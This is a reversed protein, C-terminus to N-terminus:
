SLHILIGDRLLATQGIYVLAKYSYKEVKQSVLGQNAAPLSASHPHAGATATPPLFGVLASYSGAVVGVWRSARFHLRMIARSQLISILVHPVTHPHQMVKDMAFFSGFNGIYKECRSQISDRRDSRGFHMIAGTITHM